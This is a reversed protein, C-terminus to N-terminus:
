TAKHIQLDQYDINNKIMVYLLTVMKRAVAVIAINHGKHVFKQYIKKLTKDHQVAVNAAQVMIWRLNRNGKKTIHGLRLTEGSQHVKPTLGTFNALKYKNDFRRIDGVEAVFTAAAYHAIGTMTMVRRIEPDDGAMEEIIGTCHKKKVLILEVIDLYQDLELRDCDPLNINRMYFIASKCFADEFPVDYGHRMLIAHVKNKIETNLDTLSHRHRTIQRKVRVDRPSAYSLPLCNTRMLDALLKADDKDTHKRLKKLASMAVPNALQLSYGADDLYDYIHQWCICSEIAVISDARPVKFMFLELAHPENRFRQEAVKNGEKDMIYGYITKKHVDLGVYYIAKPNCSKM